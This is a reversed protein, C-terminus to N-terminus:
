EAADFCFEEEGLTEESCYTIECEEEDEACTLEPCNETRPDCNPVDAGHKWIYKYPTQDCDEDDLDCGWVFCSETETDCSLESSIYFDDAISFKYHKASISVAFFLILVAVLIKTKVSMKMM